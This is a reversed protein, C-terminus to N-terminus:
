RNVRREDGAGALCDLWGQDALCVLITCQSTAETVVVLVVLRDLSACLVEVLHGSDALPHQSNANM